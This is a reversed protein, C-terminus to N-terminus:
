WKVKYGKKVRVGTYPLVCRFGLLPLAKSQELQSVKHTTNKYNSALYKRKMNTNDSVFRSAWKENLSDKTIMEPYIGQSNLYVKFNNKYFQAYQTFHKYYVKKLISDM